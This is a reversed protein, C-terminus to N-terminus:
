SSLQKFCLMGFALTPPINWLAFAGSLFGITERIQQQIEPSSKAFEEAKECVVTRSIGYLSHSLENM